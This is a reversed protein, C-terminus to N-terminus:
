KLFEVRGADGDVMIKDGTRIRSVAGTVGVVAPIGYERAIVSSHSLLGGIESVVACARRFLPTWGPDTIVSVLIEGNELLDFEDPGKIVRAVSVVSGPSTGLGALRRSDEKCAYDSRLGRGEYWYYYPLRKKSREFSVIRPWIKDTLRRGSFSTSLFEDVIERYTLFFIHNRNELANKKVLFEGLKLFVKRYLGFLKDLEFRLDERMATYIRAYRLVGKFLPRYAPGFRQVSLYRLVKREAELMRAELGKRKVTEKSTLGISILAIVNEPKEDWRPCTFDRYPSRIGYTNIFNDFLRKFEVFSPESRIRELISLYEHSKFLNSLTINNRVINSLEFLKSNVESSKNDDLVMLLEEVIGPGLATCQRILSSLIWIGQTAFLYSWQSVGQQLDATLYILTQAIQILERPDATHKIKDKLCGVRLQFGPLFKRKFKRYNSHIRSYPESALLGPLGMLARGFKTWKLPVCKVEERMKPPLLTLADDILVKRPLLKLMEAIADANLYLYNDIIKLTNNKAPTSIGLVRLPKQFTYSDKLEEVIISATLPCLAEPWLDDCIGRTWNGEPREALTTVPRSQLLYLKEQLFAWEFDQPRGDFIIELRKAHNWLMALEKESLVSIEQKCEPVPELKRIGPRLMLRKRTVKKELLHGSNRDLLYIDPSVSGEAVSEGLGWNAEIVVGLDSSPAPNQTFGIGAKEAEVMRQVIVAIRPTVNPTYSKTRINWASAWCLRVCRIVADAGQVELFTDLQGAFAFGHGDEVASSSRIAVTDREGALKTYKTRIESELDAPMSGTKLDDIEIRGLSFGNKKLFYSLAESRVCFGLPVRFGSAILIGLNHAKAGVEEIPFKDASELDVIWGSNINMMHSWSIITIKSVFSKKLCFYISLVGLVRKIHLSM